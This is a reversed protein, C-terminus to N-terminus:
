SNSDFSPWIKDFYLQIGTRIKKFKQIEDMKTPESNKPKQIEFGQHQGLSRVKYINSPDLPM